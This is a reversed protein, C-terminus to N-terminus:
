EIVITQMEEDYGVKLGLQEAIFRLPVMTRNNMVKAPVDIITEVDDVFVKNETLEFVIVKDGKTITVIKEEANWEVEAGMGESIARVPILTRGEKIVPPTDFKTDGNVIIVNEVPIVTVDDSSELADAVEELEALEELTYKNKMILQMESIKAKLQAKYDDKEAKLIELQEKLATVQEEDGAAEADELLLELEDIEAEVEDKLAEIEDKELKIAAKAEKWLKNKGKGKGKGKGEKITDEDEETEDEETEDEDETEHEEEEDEVVISEDVEPTEDIVEEGFAATPFVLALLLVLILALKSSERM